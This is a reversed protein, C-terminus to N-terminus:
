KLIKFNSLVVAEEPIDSWLKTIRRRINIGVSVIAFLVFVNFCIVLLGTICIRIVRVGEPSIGTLNVIIDISGNIVAIVIEVIGDKAICLIQVIISKVIDFLKVIDDKFIDVIEVTFGLLNRLITVIVDKVFGATGEFGWQINEVITKFIGDQSLIFEVGVLVVAYSKTKYVEFIESCSMYMSQFHLSVYGRLQTHIFEVGGLVVVFIAIAFYFVGETM